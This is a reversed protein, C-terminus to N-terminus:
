DEERVEKRIMNSLSKQINKGIVNLLNFLPMIEPSVRECLRKDHNRIITETRKGIEYQKGLIEIRKM